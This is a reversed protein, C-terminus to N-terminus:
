CPATASPRIAMAAGAEGDTAHDVLHGQAELLAIVDRAIRRDDEVLLLRM